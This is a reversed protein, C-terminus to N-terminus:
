SSRRARGWEEYLLREGPKVHAKVRDVLWLLRAPARSSLFLERGGLPDFDFSHLSVSGAEHVVIADRDAFQAIEWTLRDAILPASDWDPSNTIQARLAKAQSSFKRVDEARAAGKEKLSPTM